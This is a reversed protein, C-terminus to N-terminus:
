PRRTHPVDSRDSMQPADGPLAQGGVAVNFEDLSCTMHWWGDPVLMVDGPRQVCRHVNGASIALTNNLLWACPWGGEAESMEKHPFPQRIGPIHNADAQAPPALWWVKRGSVQALWAEGHKHMGHGTALGDMAFVSRALGPIGAPVGYDASLARFFHRRHERHSKGTPRHHDTGSLASGESKLFVPGDDLTAFLFINRQTANIVALYERPSVEVAHKTFKGTRGVLRLWEDRTFTSLPLQHADFNSLFPEQQWNRQALWKTTMNSLMAPLVPPWHPATEVQLRQLDCPSHALDAARQRLLSHADAKRQGMERGTFQVAAAIFREGGEAGTAPSGPTLNLPRDIALNPPPEQRYERIIGAVNALRKEWDWWILVILMVMSAQALVVALAWCSCSKTM